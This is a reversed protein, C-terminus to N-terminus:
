TRSPSLPGHLVATAQLMEEAEEYKHGARGGKEACRRLRLFRTQLSLRKVDGDNAVVPADGVDVSFGVGVGDEAHFVGLGFVVEIADLGVVDVGHAAEGFGFAFGFDIVVKAHLEEDVGDDQLRM